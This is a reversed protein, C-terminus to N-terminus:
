SENQTPEKDETIIGIQYKYDDNNMFDNVEEFMERLMEEGFNVVISILVQTAIYPQWTMVEEEVLMEIDNRM